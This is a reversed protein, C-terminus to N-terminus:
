PKNWIVQDQDWTIEDQDWLVPRRIENSYVDATTIYFEDSNDSLLMNNYAKISGQLIAPVEEIFLASYLYSTTPREQAFETFFSGVLYSGIVKNVFPGKFHHDISYSLTFYQRRIRTNIHLIQYSSLAEVKLTSTTSSGYKFYSFYREKFVFGHRREGYILSQTYRERQVEKTLPAIEYNLQYKEIDFYSSRLSEIYVSQFSELKTDEISSSHLYLTHRYDRYLNLSITDIEIPTTYLERRVESSAAGYNLANIHIERSVYTTEAALLSGGKFSRKFIKDSSGFLVYYSIATHSLTQVRFLDEEKFQSAEAEIGIYIHHLQKRRRVISSSSPADLRIYNPNVFYNLVERILLSPKNESLFTSGDTREYLFLRKNRNYQKTTTYGTFSGLFPFSGREPYLTILDSICDDIELDGEQPIGFPFDLYQPRLQSVWISGESSYRNSNEIYEYLVSGDGQEVLRGNFLFSPGLYPHILGDTIFSYYHSWSDITIPKLYLESPKLYAVKTGDWTLLTPLKDDIERDEIPIYIFQYSPYSGDVSRSTSIFEYYLNSNPYNRYLSLKTEKIGCYEYNHLSLDKKLEELSISPAKYGHIVDEYKQYDRNVRRARQLRVEEIYTDLDETITVSPKHALYHQNFEIVSQSLIGM